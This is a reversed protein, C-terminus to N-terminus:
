KIKRLVAQRLIMLVPKLQLMAPLTKTTAKRANEKIVDQIFIIGLLKSECYLGVLSASEKAGAVVANEAGVLNEEVKGVMYKKGDIEFEIGSGALTKHNKIEYLGSKNYDMIAKALPHNSLAEGSAAGSMQRVFLKQKRHM